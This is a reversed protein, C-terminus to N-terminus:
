LCTEPTGRFALSKPVVVSGERPVGGHGYTRVLKLGKREADVLFVGLKTQVELEALEAIVRLTGDFLDDM